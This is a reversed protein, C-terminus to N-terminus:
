APRADPLDFAVAHTVLLPLTKGAEGQATATFRVSEAGSVFVRGQACSCAM